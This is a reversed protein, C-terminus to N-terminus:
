EAEASEVLAAVTVADNDDAAKNKETGIMAEISPTLFANNEQNQVEAWGTNGVAAKTSEVLEAAAVVEQANDNESIENESLSADSKTLPSASFEENSDAAFVSSFSACTTIGAITAVVVALKKPIKM